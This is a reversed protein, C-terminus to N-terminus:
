KNLLSKAFNFNVIYRKYMFIRAYIHIIYTSAM